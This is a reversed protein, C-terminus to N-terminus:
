VTMEARRAVDEGLTVRDGCVLDGCPWSLQLLAGIERDYAAVDSSRGAQTTGRRLAVLRRLEEQACRYHTM